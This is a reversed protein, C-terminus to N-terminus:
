DKYYKFIMPLFNNLYLRWSRWDHGGSNMYFTHFLHIENMMERLHQSEAMAMDDGSGCGMWILKVGSKKIRLLDSQLYGDDVVACSLPCVYDFRDPYMGAAYFTQIGGSSLGAVARYSKKPVARYHSEVYPIIESVLSAEFAREGYGRALESSISPLGLSKSAQEQPHCNPMVVIMPVARGSHILNDLIVAARGASLWSEEDGDEGHLLYLVPYQRNKEKAYGAPTYVAMRRNGGLVRSDYWVYDINGRFPCDRYSAAAAGDVFLGSFQNLGDKLLMPNAPDPISVGDVIFSYTHFDAPIGEMTIEWVGDNKQMMAPLGLWSGDLRVETAYEGAIRFTVQTGNIEPSKLNRDYSVNGLEQASLSLVFPFVLLLIFILRKLPCHPNHAVFILFFAPM